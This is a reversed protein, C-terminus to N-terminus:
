ILSIDLRRGAQDHQQREYHEVKEKVFKEFIRLVEDLGEASWSVKHAGCGGGSYGCLEQAGSWVHHHRRPIKGIAADDSSDV